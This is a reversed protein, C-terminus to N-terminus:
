QLYYYTEKDGNKIKYVQGSNIVSEAECIPKLKEMKDNILYATGDEIIVAYGHCFDAADDFLQVVKGDHDCYGWKGDKSILWYKEMSMDLYDFVATVKVNDASVYALIYKNDTQFVMKNGYNALYFGNYWYYPVSKVQEGAVSNSYFYDHPYGAPEDLGDGAWNFILEGNSKLTMYWPYILVIAKDKTRLCYSNNFHMDRGIMVGDVFGNMPIYFDASNSNDPSYHSDTAPDAGDGDTWEITGDTSVCGLLHNFINKDLGVEPRNYIYEWNGNQKDSKIVISKGNVFGNPKFRDGYASTCDASVILKKDYSYYEMKFEEDYGGDTGSNKGQKAVVFAENSAVIMYPGSYIKEGNSSYLDYTGYEGAEDKDKMLVFYGYDNAGQYGEYEIPVIEKGQTNVAGYRYEEQGIKKGVIVSEGGAWCVFVGDDLNLGSLEDIEGKFEIDEPAKKEEDIDNDDVNGDDGEDTDDNSDDVEIKSKKDELEQKREKMEESDTQTIGKELVSIGQDLHAIAERNNHEELDLDSLIDYVHAIKLYAREDKPNIKIAEEYALIANDYDLESLYKDGLDLQKQLAKKPAAVILVYALIAAAIILVAAASGVIVPIIWKKKKQVVQTSSDVAPTENVTNIENREENEAM